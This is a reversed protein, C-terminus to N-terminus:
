AWSCRTMSPPTGLSTLGLDGELPDLVGDVLQTGAHGGPQAGHDVGHRGVGAAVDDLQGGDAAAGPHVHDGGGAQVVGAEVALPVPALQELGLFQGLQEHALQGPM